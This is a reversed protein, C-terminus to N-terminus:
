KMAAQVPQYGPAAIWQVPSEGNEMNWIRIEGDYSGSAIRNTAPHCDISYVWDKHGAFDRIQAGDASNHLRVHQDGGASVVRGDALVQIELVDGGFGGIERVQGADAAKWVRLRKDRGASVVQASDALFGASYVVDGHSNFTTIADGTKSDFVKTTKDRSATVLKTGDPSWNVDLVWDAHDELRFLQKWNSVDYVSLSRDAGCGALRTGDPSFAVGFMADDVTVLDAIPVGDATQFVKLEGWQGPTGAAVALKSGDPSFAIDFVRESLGGIRRVISKDAPNWLIVEHYGSSALLNGDPSFAVATVPLTSSYHDPAPPQTPKPMIRLLQTNADVGADLKGGLTIWKDIVAAQEPTLPAADKPMSGDAIQSHITSNELNGAAVAPGSEGGKQMSAFSEMNLRGKASRANHCALCRSYLIPAVEQSFSVWQGEAKLAGEVARAKGLWDATAATSVDRASNLTTQVAALQEGAQTMGTQLSALATKQTALTQETQTVAAVATEAAKAVDANAKKAEDVKKQAEVLAANAGEVAKDSEVKATAAKASEEQQKKLNAESEGIAKQTQELDSKLKALMQELTRFQGDVENLKAQAADRQGAAATAQSELEAIPPGEAHAVCPVLCLFALVPLAFRPM